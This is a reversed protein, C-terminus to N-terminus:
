LLKRDWLSGYSYFYNNQWHNILILLSIGSAAISDRFALDENPAGKQFYALAQIWSLVIVFPIFYVVYLRKGIM